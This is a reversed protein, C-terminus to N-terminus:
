QEDSPAAADHRDACRTGRSPVADALSTAFISLPVFLESFSSGRLSKPSIVMGLAVL